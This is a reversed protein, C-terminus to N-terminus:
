QINLPWYLSKHQFSRRRTLIDERLASNGFSMWDEEPEYGDLDLEYEKLFPSRMPSIKVGDGGLISSVFDETHEKEMLVYGAIKDHYRRYRVYNREIHDQIYQNDVDNAYIIWRRATIPRHKYLLPWCAKYYQHREGPKLDLDDIEYFLNEMAILLEETQGQESRKKIGNLRIELWTLKLEQKFEETIRISQQVHFRYIMERLEPPLYQIWATTLDTM